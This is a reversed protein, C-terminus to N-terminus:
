FIGAQGKAQSVRKFSLKSAERKERAMRLAAKVFRAKQKTVRLDACTM